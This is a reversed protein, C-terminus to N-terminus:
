ATRAIQEPEAVTLRYPGDGAAEPQRPEKRERLELDDLEIEVPDFNAVDQIPASPLRICLSQRLANARDQLLLYVDSYAADLPDLARRVALQFFAEAEDGGGLANRYPVPSGANILRRLPISEARSKTTPASAKLHQGDTVCFIYKAETPVVGQCALFEQPVIGSSKSDRPVGM